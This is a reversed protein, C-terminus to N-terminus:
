QNLASLRAPTGVDNWVGTFHQGSIQGFAMAERLVPALRFAGDPTGDLLGPRYLGIGSFTLKSPGCTRLKQGDLVFDGAPHHEPNDVMVLHALAAGLREARPLEAFDFDTYVDGNVAVFANQESALYQLARKMGGGTELPKPGEESYDIRVGFRRGDGLVTKIQEGLHSLNIVLDVIGARNLAEIHWVILPKGRVSLLPKPTHETLPRMREGFGAAFILAKM